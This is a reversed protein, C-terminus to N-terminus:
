AVIEPRGENRRIKKLADTRSTGTPMSQSLQRGVDDAWGRHFDHRDRDAAVKRQQEREEVENLFKKAGGRAWHDHRRLYQIFWDGPESSLNVEFIRPAGPHRWWEWADEERNEHHAAIANVLRRADWDSGKPVEYAQWRQSYPNFVVLVEPFLRELDRVFSSAVEGEPWVNV